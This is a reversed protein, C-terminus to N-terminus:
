VPLIDLMQQSSCNCFGLHYNNKFTQELIKNMLLECLSVATLHWIFAHELSNSCIGLDKSNIYIVSRPFWCLVTRELPFLKSAELLCHLTTNVDAQESIKGKSDNTDQCYEQVWQSDLFNWRKYGTSIRNAFVSVNV